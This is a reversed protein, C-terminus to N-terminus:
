IKLSMEGKLEIIFSTAIIILRNNRTILQVEEICFLSTEV